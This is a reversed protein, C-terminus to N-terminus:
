KQVYIQGASSIIINKTTGAASSVTIKAYAKPLSLTGLNDVTYIWADPNPRKFIISLKDTPICNTAIDTGACMSKIFSGRKISYKQICEPDSAPCTTVSATTSSNNTDAFLVFNTNSALRDYYVGFSTFTGAINSEKTNVGYSQAQRITLATDYALNNLLVSNDFNNQNFLVVGTLVVFISITVLLEVLTFGATHNLLSRRIKNKLFRIM